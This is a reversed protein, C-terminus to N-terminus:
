EKYKCIFKKLDQIFVDTSLEYRIHKGDRYSTLIGEEKLAQLHHSVIAVNLGLKQAIDSVCILQERFILCLIKLRCEDGITRMKKALDNLDM